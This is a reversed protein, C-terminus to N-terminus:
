SNVYRDVINAAGGSSIVWIALSGPIKQCCGTGFQMAPIGWSCCLMLDEKEAIAFVTLIVSLSALPESPIKRIAVIFLIKVM